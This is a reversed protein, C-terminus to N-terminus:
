KQYLITRTCPLRRRLFYPSATAVSTAAPKAATQAAAAGAGSSGIAFTSIPACDPITSEAAPEIQGTDRREMKMSGAGGGDGISAPIGPM